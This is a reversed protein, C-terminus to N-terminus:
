ARELAREDVDVGVVRSGSQKRITELLLGESCGVDVVTSNADFGIGVREMRRLIRRVNETAIAPPLEARTHRPDNYLQTAASGSHIAKPLIRHTGCGSCQMVAFRRGIMQSCFTQARHESCWCAYDHSEIFQNVSRM